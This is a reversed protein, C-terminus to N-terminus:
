HRVEALFGPLPQGFDAGLILPDVERRAAARRPTQVNVCIAVDRAAELETQARGTGDAPDAEVRLGERDIALQTRRREGAEGREAVVIGVGRQEVTAAPLDRVREFLQALHAGLVVEPWEDDEPSGAGARRGQELGADGRAQATLAPM